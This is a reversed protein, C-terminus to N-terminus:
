AGCRCRSCAPPCTGGHVLAQRHIVVILLGLEVQFMIGLVNGAQDMGMRGRTWQHILASQLKIRHGNVYYSYGLWAEERQKMVTEVREGPLVLGYRGAVQGRKGLMSSAQVLVGQGEHVFALPGEGTIVPPGESRRDFFEALVSWGRYKFLLDAIFTNVDRKAGDPFLEGLQGNTRRTARNTSYGAGLALRPQQQRELDGEHREGGGEFGGFPLWEVRGTYSLGGKTPASMRGEGSTIAGKVRWVQGGLTDEWQASVGFDRDLTFAANVISREPLELEGSSVVRQRNGPLKSQGM